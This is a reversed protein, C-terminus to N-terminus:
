LQQGAGYRKRTSARKVEGDREVPEVLDNFTRNSVERIESVEHVPALVQVFREAVNLIQLLDAPSDNVLYSLEDSPM